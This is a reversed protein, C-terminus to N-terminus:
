KLVVYLNDYNPAKSGLFSVTLKNESYTVTAEPIEKVSEGIKGWIGSYQLDKPMYRAFRDKGVDASFVFTKPREESPHTFRYWEDPFESKLNFLRGYPNEGKFKVNGSDGVEATYSINLIIDAISTRDFYNTEQPLSITWESEAGMGEFPLYREDNFNVEFMGSDNQASSTAITVGGAVTRADQQSGAKLYYTSKILTLSCNISTHPGAVCPISLSVNKIRRMCHNPYDMDFVSSPINFHCEGKEILAMLQDPALEALSISKTIELSRSNRELYAKELQRINVLLSDGAMLGKYLSNWHSNVIISESTGLEFNFCEEAQKALDFAMQYSKFYIGVVQNVMWNYLKETAFRNNMAETMAKNNEIQLQHNKLDLEAIALRIEAGAIQRELAQVEKAATQAQLKWEANRREYGAKTTLMSAKRNKVAAQIEMNQAIFNCVSALMSGDFVRSIFHPSGGFGSVGTVISPIVTMISAQNKLIAAATEQSSASAVLRLAEIEKDSMYEINEFFNQRIIAGDMSANLQKINQKAEEIQQKKVATGANLVLLEQSQRLQSLAEADKKELAALLKEGLVKVDQCYEAAKQIITRFRYIRPSSGSGSIADKLSVGAAAARVLLAPDIPPEYLALKRYVGDINLSNRMKFLRDAVTDWCSLLADNSPTSFYAIDLKQLESKSKSDLLTDDGVQINDEIYLPLLAGVKGNGFGDLKNGQLENFSYDNHVSLPNVVKNPRLGLIEGALMYLMTAENLSEMTDERFLMDGWSILNNIYKLVVQHQYAATRYQAVIHPKFPNNRWAKVQDTYKDLNELIGQITYKDNKKEVTVQEHANERFPSTVWYREPSGGVNEVYDVPNFIYHFWNMAEEFKQDQMLRCAITFPIHFFLEWNYVAYAGGNSFDVTEIPYEGVCSTPKYKNKFLELKSDPRQLKRDFLGSLGDKNLQRIFESTFPHYFTGFSYSGSRRYQEIFSSKTMVSFIRENDQYFMLASKRTASMQLNQQSILFAFPSNLGNAMVETHSARNTETYVPVNLMSFNKQHNQNNKLWNGELHMGQPLFLKPRARNLLKMAAADPGFYTQVYNFSGAVNKFLVDRVDGDFVFSSSHWPSFTENYTCSTKLANNDPYLDFRLKQNDVNFEKSTSLYIDLFLDKTSDEFFPRLTYSRTPRRWPHILKQKSIRKPMWSGGKRQTWLLQIEYYKLTEQNDSPGDTAQAAPLKAPKMEKEVFQLWFIYLRHNYVVPVIQEGDLEVEIKEWPSWQNYNVDYTRYYYVRPSSKTRAIVHWVDFEYGANDENRDEQQRYIGCVELHAVEDLKHLYNLFADEANEQTAENQQLEGLFEQFFPSMGDRLEPELYNEPFLFIKRNAEWVRYNKMWNWQSWSDFSSNDDRNQMSVTVGTEMNLLCRQVFMQISSLAHRIESTDQDANMEVDMLFYATMESTNAFTNDRGLLYAVLVDRKEERIPNEIQRLWEAAKTETYRISINKRLQSATRQENEYKGPMCWEILDKASCRMKILDDMVESITAYCVYSRFYELKNKPQYGVMDVDSLETLRKLFSETDKASCLAEMYSKESDEPMFQYDLSVLQSMALLQDVTWAKFRTTFFDPTGLLSANEALIKFQTNTLTLRQDCLALRYLQSCWTTTNKSLGEKIKTQKTLYSIKEEDLGLWGVLLANLESIADNTSGKKLISSVQEVKETLTTESLLSKSSSATLYELDKVSFESESVSNVKQLIKRLSSAFKLKEDKFIEFDPVCRALAVKNVEKKEGNRCEGGFLELTDAFSLSLTDKVRLFSSIGKLLNEPKKGHKYENDGILPHCVIKLFEKLPLGSKRHLRSLLIAEELTRDNGTKKTNAVYQLTIDAYDSASSQVFTFNFFSMLEMLEPYTMDLTKMLETVQFGCENYNKALLTKGANSYYKVVEECEKKSMGLYEGAVEVSSAGLLEMLRYRPTKFFSFYARNKAQPLSFYPKLKPMDADALKAYVKDSVAARLEAVSEEDMNKISLKMKDCAYKELTYCVLDIYPVLDHANAANLKIDGIDSRRSYLVNLATKGNKARMQGLFRLLDALYAPAGLLTMDDDVAFSDLTGFLNRLEPSDMKISGKQAASDRLSLYYALVQAYIYEVRKFTEKAVSDPDTIKNSSRLVNALAGEGRLYISVADSWMGGENNLLAAAVRYDPTIRRIRQVVRVSDYDLVKGKYDEIQRDYLDFRKSDDDDFMCELLVNVAVCVKKFDEDSKQNAPSRLLTKLYYIFYEKPWHIAEQAKIDAIQKATAGLDKWEKDAIKVIRGAFHSKILSKDNYCANELLNLSDQVVLSTQFLNKVDLANKKSLGLKENVKLIFSESLKCSSELYISAVQLYKETSVGNKKNLIQLLSELSYGNEAMNRKLVQCQKLKELGSLVTDNTLKVTQSVISENLAKHIANKLVDSSSDVLVDFLRNIYEKVNTTVVKKRLKLDISILSEGAFLREDVSGFVNQRLMGYFVESTVSEAGTNVKSEALLDSKQQNMRHALVFMLVKEVSLDAKKAVSSITQSCKQLFLDYGNGTFVNRLSKEVISFESKGRYRGVFQLDKGRIARTFNVFSRRSKVRVRKCVVVKDPQWAYSLKVTVDFVSPITKLNERIPAFPINFFGDKGTTRSCLLIESGDDKQLFVKVLMETMGNWNEDRVSGLIVHTHRMRAANPNASLVRRSFALRTKSDFKSTVPLNQAKQFEKVAEMTTKGFTFSELEQKDIRYGLYALGQQLAPVQIEDKVNLNMNSNPVVLDQAQPASLWTTARGHSKAVSKIKQFTNLDITGTPELGLKEQLRSITAKNASFRTNARRVAVKVDSTNEEELIFGAARRVMKHIESKGSGELRKALLAEELLTWAEKDILNTVKINKKSRLDNIPKLTDANIFNMAVLEAPVKYGLEQIMSYLQAIKKKDFVLKTHFMASKLAEYSEDNCAGNQKLGALNQVTTVLAKETSSLTLKKFDDLTKTVLARAVVLQEKSLVNRYPEYKLVIDQTAQPATQTFSQTGVVIQNEGAVVQLRITVKDSFTAMDKTAQYRYILKFRGWADTQASGLVSEPQSTKGNWLATVTVGPIAVLNKGTVKGAVSLQITTTM